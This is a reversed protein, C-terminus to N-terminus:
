LLLTLSEQKNINLVIEEISSCLSAEYSKTNKDYLKLRNVFISGTGFLKTNFNNFNYFLTNVLDDYYNNLLYKVKIYLSSTTSPKDIDIISNFLSLIIDEKSRYIDYLTELTDIEKFYTENNIVYEYNNIKKNQIMNFLVDKNNDNIYVDTFLPVLYENIDKEYLQKDIYKPEWDYYKISSNYTNIYSSDFIDWIDNNENKCNDEIYLYLYNNVKNNYYLVDFLDENLKYVKKRICLDVEIKLTNIKLEFKNNLNRSNSINEFFWENITDNDTNILNHVYSVNAKSTEDLQGKNESYSIIYKLIYNYLTTYTDITKIINNDIIWKREKVYLYELINKNVYNNNEDFEFPSINNEDRNLKYSYEFIHERNLLKIFYDKKNLSKISINNKTEKNFISILENLNYSDVYIPKKSKINILKVFYNEIDIDNIKGYNEFVYKNKEEEFSSICSTFIIKKYQEKYYNFIEELTKGELEDELKTQYFSLAENFNNFGLENLADINNSDKYLQIKNILIKIDNISKIKNYMSLASDNISEDIIQIDEVNNFIDILIFYIDYLSVFHDELYIIFKGGINEDYEIKNYLTSLKVKKTSTQSSYYLKNYLWEYKQSKNNTNFLSETLMFRFYESGYIDHCKEFYNLNNTGDLIIYGLIKNTNLYELIKNKLSLPFKSKNIIINVDSLKFYINENKYSDDKIYKGYLDKKMLRNYHLYSQNVSSTSLINNIFFKNYYTLNLLPNYIKMNYNSNFKYSIKSSEDSYSYVYKSQCLEDENTINM